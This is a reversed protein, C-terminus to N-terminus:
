KWDEKLTKIIALINKKNQPLEGSPLNPSPTNRFFFFKDPWGLLGYRNKRPLPKLGIGQDTVVIKYTRLFPVRWNGQNTNLNITGYLSILEGNVSWDGVARSTERGPWEAGM